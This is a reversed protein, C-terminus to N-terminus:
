YRKNSRAHLACGGGGGGGGWKLLCAQSPRYQCLQTNQGVADLFEPNLHGQWMIRNFSSIHQDWSFVLQPWDFIHFYPQFTSIVYLKLNLPSPSPLIVNMTLDPGLDLRYGLSQTNLVWTEISLVPSVIVLLTLQHLAPERGRPQSGKMQFHLKVYFNSYLDFIARQSRSLFFKVCLHNWLVHGSKLTVETSVKYVASQYKRANVLKM